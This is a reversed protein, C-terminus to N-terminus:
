TNYMYPGLFLGSNFGVGTITKTMTMTVKFLVSVIYVPNRYLGVECFIGSWVQKEPLNKNKMHGLISRRSLPYVEIM